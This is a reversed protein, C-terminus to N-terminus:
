AVIRLKKGLINKIRVAFKWKQIKEKVILKEQFLSHRKSNLSSNRWFKHIIKLPMPRSLKLDRARSGELVDRNKIKKIQSPIM